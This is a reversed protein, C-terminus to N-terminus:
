AIARRARRQSAIATRSQRRSRESRRVKARAGSFCREATIRSCGRSTIISRAATARAEVVVRIPESSLTVASPESDTTVSEEDGDLLDHPLNEVQGDPVPLNSVQGRQPRENSDAPADKDKNESKPQDDKPENLKPGDAPKSFEFPKQDNKKAFEATTILAKKEDEQIVLVM